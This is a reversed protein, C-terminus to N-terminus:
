PQDLGAGEAYRKAPHFASAADPVLLAGKSMVSMLAGQNLPPRAFKSAGHALVSLGIFGPRSGNVKASNCRRKESLSFHRANRSRARQGFPGTHGLQPVTLRAERSVVRGPSNVQRAHMRRKETVAPVGICLVWKGSQVHIM